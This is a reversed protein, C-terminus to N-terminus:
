LFGTDRQRRDTSGQQESGTGIADVGVRKRSKAERSLLTAGIYEDLKQRELKYLQERAKSLAKGGSRDLDAQTIKTGDVEALKQSENGPRCGLLPLFAVELLFFYILKSM